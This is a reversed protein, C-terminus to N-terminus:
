IFVTSLLNHQLRIIITSSGEWSRRMRISQPRNNLNQLSCTRLPHRQSLPTTHTHSPTYQLLHTNKLQPLLQTKLNHNTILQPLRIPHPDPPFTRMPQPSKANRLTKHICLLNNLRTTQLRMPKPPM